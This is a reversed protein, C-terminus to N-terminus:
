SVTVSMTLDWADTVHTTRQPYRPHVVAVIETVDHHYHTTRLELPHTWHDYQDHQLVYNLTPFNTLTPIRMHQGDITITLRNGHRVIHRPTIHQGNISLWARRGADPDGSGLLYGESEGHLQYGEVEGAEHDRRTTRTFTPKTM